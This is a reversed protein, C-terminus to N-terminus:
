QSAKLKPMTISNDCPGRLRNWSSEYPQANTIWPFHEMDECSGGKVCDAILEAIELGEYYAGQLFGPDEGDSEDTNRAALSKGFYKRSTAEGAFYFRGVNARLNDFHQSSFSPPWNSYSGRFLPNSHWRPFFFETPDPVTVNPFMSRVVGMVEQQVQSDPLAEIRVSYDGKDNFLANLKGDNYRFSM